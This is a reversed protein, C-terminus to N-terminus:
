NKFISKINELKTKIAMDYEQSDSKILVGGIIEKEIKYNLIVDKKTIEKLKQEIKEKIKESLSFASIIDFEKLGKDELNIKKYQIQIEELNNIRNKDCLIKLFSVFYKEYEKIFIEDTIKFKSQKDIVPSILAKSLNCNEKLLKNANQLSLYYEDQLNEEKAIEFLVTAYVKAVNDNSAM